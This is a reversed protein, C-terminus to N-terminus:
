TISLCARRGIMAGHRRDIPDPCTGRAARIRQEADNTSLYSAGPECKAQTLRRDAADCTHGVSLDTPDFSRRVRPDRQRVQRRDCRSNAEVQREAAIWPARWKPVDSM